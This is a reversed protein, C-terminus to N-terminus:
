WSQKRQAQEDEEALIAGVASAAANRSTSAHPTSDKPECVCGASSRIVVVAALKMDLDECNKVCETAREKPLSLTTAPLTACGTSLVCLLLPFTAKM